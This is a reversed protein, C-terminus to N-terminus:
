TRQECLGNWSVTEQDNIKLLLDLNEEFLEDYHKVDYGFLPFSEIFAGRGTIIEVRGNSLLDLMTFDEFLRVPDVTNLITTTSTLKLRKTVQSIASLVVAPASVAYDLRHHEGVGFMDLGAEDAMKAAKMIENLSASKEILNYLYTYLYIM